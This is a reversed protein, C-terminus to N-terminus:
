PCAVGTRSLYKIGSLWEQFAADTPECLNTNNFRFSRLHSLASMELPLSGGLQNNQLELRELSSLAGIEPPIAGSLQNNYLYLERLNSLTGLEPPIAGSLKNKSLNLIQLRSLQGLEPPINSLQNRYLYLVKLRSLQFLEPPINSLQNSSLDLIELHSLQGIESFNSNPPHVEVLKTVHASFFSGDCGVYTKHCPSKWSTSFGLKELAEREHDPILPFLQYFVFALIALVVSLGIIGYISFCVKREARSGRTSAVRALVKYTLIGAFLGVIPSILAPLAMCVIFIIGSVGPRALFNFFIIGVILFFLAASALGVVISTLMRLGRNDQTPQQVPEM